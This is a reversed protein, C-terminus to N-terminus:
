NRQCWKEWVKRYASELRQTFAKGDCLISNKLVERLQLRTAALKGIDGALRCAIKVYEKVDCAVLESLGAAALVSASLRGAHTNGKLTIVPVGMHLCECTTTHGSWPFTDLVIDIGELVSLYHDHNPPSCLFYVRNMDFGAKKFMNYWYDKIGGRLTDRFFIFRSDPVSMLVERWLRIVESNVKALDNLSGFTIYGNKTAPLPSVPPTHIIPTYCSFGESLYLLEETYWQGSGTPDAIEDTIYYDVTELGTTNPYGLYSIQVPAPKSAFIALRSNATHGTLDVLIDIEDQQIMRIVEENGLGHINRWNKAFMKLHKTVADKIAADSYCYNIVSDPNHYKLVPKIFNSVPHARFDPSLYAVRLPRDITRSNAYSTHRCVNKMYLEGCKKHENFITDPTYAPHYNLVYVLNSYFVPNDPMLGIARSYNEIAEDMRGSDKLVNALNNYAVAFSPKLMVAKRFCDTAKDLVKLAQFSLGLNNYCEAIDPRINLAKIYSKVAEEHRGASALIVGKSHYYMAKLPNIEIAANIYGMAAAPLGRRYYIMALLNLMAADADKHNLILQCLIEAEEINGNEFLVKAKGLIEEMLATKVTQKKLAKWDIFKRRNKEWGDRPDGSGWHHLEMGDFTYNIYGRQSAEWTVSIDYFDWGNFYDEDWRVENLLDRKCFLIVGDLVEVPGAAGYNNHWRNIEGGEKKLHGVRGSLFPESQWWVADNNLKKAGAVGIFGTRTDNLINELHGKDIKLVDVDEHCFCVYKNDSSLEIGRNYAKFISDFGELFFVDAEDEFHLNIWRRTNEKYVNNQTCVVFAWKKM